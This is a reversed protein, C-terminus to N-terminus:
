KDQLTRGAERVRRQDEDALSRRVEGLHQKILPDVPDLTAARELEPSALDAKGAKYYAWGLTDHVEAEGPLRTAALRALSVASDATAADASYLRALKNAAVADDPRLALAQEFWKRAEGDRGAAQLILGVATRAEASQPAHAALSELTTRARDLDGRAAYIQSLLTHADFSAPDRTIAKLLHQEAAADDDVALEVQASLLLAELSEQALRLAQAAEARASTLDGDDFALSALLLAAEGSKTGGSELQRLEARARATQGDAILARAVMLRAEVGRGASEALALAESTQGEALKTRALEVTAETTMRNLQLVERFAHEADDYNKRKFEVTGVIFHALAVRPDLDLAARAAKYAEDSKGDRSLFKAKLAWAEATPTKKLVKDLALHANQPASEYEIEALRIRAATETASDRTAPQLVQRADAYRRETIYYDALALTSRLKQRPVVAAAKLYQEALPRRNTTVYVSAVARNALEDHPNLEVAKLVEQEAERVRKATLLFQALSVRAEVSRPNRAIGERYAAEAGKQDVLGTKARGLGDYLAPRSDLALATNFAGVADNFRGQRNLARGYLLLAEVNRPEHDLILEARLRAENFMGADLLLRGMGLYSRTNGPRLEIASAYERYAEEAKDLAVYTDALKLHTEASKPQQKLANRYEIVAADFRDAAFYQDGRAAYRRSQEVSGACASALTASLLVATTRRM